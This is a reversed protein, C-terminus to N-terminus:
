TPVGADRRRIRDWLVFLYFVTACLLILPVPRTLVAAQSKALFSEPAPLHRQTMHTLATLPIDGGFFAALLSIIVAIWGAVGGEAWLMASAPVSLLMLLKADYSRHYTVLMSLAAVAALAIWADLTGAKFSSRRSRAVLFLWACLLLGCIAYTVPDYVRPDDCFISIITQLDIIMDPSNVGISSPGPENIGGPASITALNARLEPLWHPAVHSVWFFAILAIGLALAASQLARKAHPRGAAVFYLWILGADHPKVVLSVALCIVGAVVFRQRLFCWAAIVTLGVVLGATNGGSFIIECNAVIVFILLVSLRPASSEGAGWMLYAALLFGLIVLILWLTQAAGLPLLALPAVILPTTPLNVYLTASQRIAVSGTSNPVGAAEYVGQLQMPNYPDCGHMLCKAGFYLAPFGMVGNHSNRELSIGWLISFAAGLILFLLSVGHIRRTALGM